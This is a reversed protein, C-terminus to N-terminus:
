PRGVLQFFFQSDVLSFAGSAFKWIKVTCGTTSASSIVAFQPASMELASVIPAYGSGSM